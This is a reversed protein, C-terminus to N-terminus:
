ETTPRPVPGEGASKSDELLILETRASSTVMVRSGLRAGAAGAAVEDDEEEPSFSERADFFTVTEEQLKQGPLGAEEESSKGKKAPSSSFGLRPFRFWGARDQKKEPEPDPRAGPQTQIPASRQTDDRANARTESTSSFGINPLWSWLLGSSKKGEPKEKLARDEGALLTAAEPRDDLPFELIEAPEEDSGSDALQLGSGAESPFTPPGLLNASGSIMEFPEGTDPQPDAPVTDGGPSGGSPEGAAPDQAITDTSAQAPLEPIKVKLLSFGYSAMQVMSTPIESERVIQTSSAEPAAMDSCEGQVNSCITVGQSEGQSEQIHVPVKSVPSVESSLDPGEPQEGPVVTGSARLLSAGWLGPSDQLLAVETGAETCPVARVVPFFVDAESSPVPFSFRPVKLKPFTVTLVSDEWLQNVNVVSVQSPVDTSSAKLKLPGKPQFSGMETRVEAKALDCGGPRSLPEGRAEGPPALPESPRVGPIQLPLPDIAPHTGGGPGPLGSESGPATPFHLQLSPSELPRSPVDAYSESEPAAGEMQAELPRPSVSAEAMSGPDPAAEATDQERPGGQEKSSSRRFGPVRLTPMRFWHAQSDAPAARTATGGDPSEVTPVDEPHAMREGHSQSMSLDGLRSEQSDGRIALDHQPLHLDAKSLSVEVEVEVKPKDFGLSPPHAQPVQVHGGDGELPGATVGSDGQGGDCSARETAESDPGDTTSSLAADTDGPPSSERAKSAKRRPLPLRPMALAPKRGKEGEKESPLHMQAETPPVQVTPQTHMEDTELVLSLTADEPHGGPDGTVVAQKKPSWSFSPLKLRPMKFPSGKGDRDAAEASGGVVAPGLHEERGPSEPVGSSLPQSAGEGLSDVGEVPCLLSLGPSDKAARSDAEAVAAAACSFGFKPKHFKPFTVRAHFAPPEPDEPGSQHEPSSVCVVSSESGASPAGRQPSCSAQPGEASSGPPFCAELPQSLKTGPARTDVQVSPQEVDLESPIVEGKPSKVELKPGKTDVQPGKVDVKPMKISPIQVKPVHGKLDVGSVTAVPLEGEPLAAESLTVDVEGPGAQLTPLQISLESSKIDGQISPLTVNAEVKPVKVEVSAGLAKGPASLSFSPMKFKPMKFKSDKTAVEKDELALDGELQASPAQIDVEMSPLEMDLNPTSEEGKPGKVDVLPGKLDVKPIKISTMQMKPLHGKLGIGSDPAAQLEGELLTPKPLTVDAQGAGAELDTASLQSSLDSGKLDGQISPLAVDAEVKPRKVEVSTDLAKSPASVGFFPMKFKPMKFKGEKTAVEKDALALDGELQAGPAQIDVQVSPLELDPTSVKGKSGKIDLKPGKVDVQPEKHDVKPMKISPMQVKPLHGELSSVAASAVLLEEEPLTAEPLTVDVQLARSDLDTDPLQRCLDSGKLDGEISPMDVDAKMKPVKVEVSTDLAKGPASLGVSPIKFKPMKFKVEKTAVDKELLALDGELNASPTQIDVQMSPLEMELDPVSVKGKSDKVDLKPGKLDVKPMKISPMHVKPLHGKLSAGSDPAALLEGEPQATEHLTMDVHGDRRDLDASPLQISLDSSKLDGQTSSLTVDAEVKPAKVEVSTDLAKGPVSVSLSPMKFKPMKFKGEKTAVDKDALALDGEVKAGPAQIDVQMSPQEVMLDPTSVEGKTGKVDLKPGKVDVQPGKLDVKPMKISPMQVKPLHGKLGVGSAPAVPLEKKPLTAESFTVDVQGARTELDATPLQISLDPTKLDSQISPLVVGTGVKPGKVEVSADLTKGPVSIGFSPMKFKPRKLKSDKTAEDKEELVLDGELKTNPAQIDVQGSPLEVDLDPVSVEVKPGKVDVKPGKIDVQPGKLDVKPMKISPMQVKPQHGKLGSKIDPEGPLEEKPLPSDHLTVGVQGDRTDLNTAPLQISLESSMLDGQTSPLAVDAEVKPVKIDVSADLAKGTASLGFSPMKFKPMKFKSDKTAVEKDEPALDEEMKTTPAQIDVQGSPLEMELDLGSVGSKPGKVDLKPGKIDVQPGKLDVKPMKISPMQVKPLHGKLSPGSDPAALLEGEPLTAEYLTVDELGDRTNLAATPLQISLDSSKLDGHISPLTVDAEVKAVKVEVSTDLAKGPVSVGLSPMKFKPMKFKGEKTAVDKDALALDGEVKAGPAQIDVQVSPQEVDMVPTSVEGKIGKVELKPGKIDLQPGKLDVKPMKISPMQMKPLHGKLKAGASSSAPIEGESLTAEPLTMDVKGTGAQLGTAPLQISFDSAKLDGQISPLAVDAEAKLGKVEVSTDLTKGPASLGFSPMKFKPRKFKSDKTDVEKDAQALDGELKTSPTEIDVQISPLEMDFDPTSHEVKSGKIDLKPGRVDVQPEKLDVKPMKISPMQGKPLHGKLSAGAPPAALLEGKPLTAKPLTLDVQGTGAELDATPMQISIDSTKLDSQISPLAVDAEVKPAKVEMSTDLTKSPTSVSFSPMKFKPMKFKSDRTAVEKDELTLDGELKASPAQIDVQGSPLEMDLDPASAEVKPGKVDLKPGKIDVQPGKLDVKPMKISPMQVKPLHGKLSAGAPPAPPQQGEPLTTKPLTVDGQSDGADLNATPLQIGLESTKLDGQISPLAVDAEVEPAKVELSTELMKGPVSVGFSPMKFKPMEFKSDKIAKEKDALALDGELKASHAQIDVQVSPQEVDMVPTSVEGKTGKVELKPGKIDVQPGKLDVKPMKISPMQMKPLHGKLKAGASSSASIEGESLTAEPLTVDVKGTGTELGTAPLQISLDSAKLDGQISPLAIHAEEKPGKVEMSTDLTKGPASIGFSPMKFKPRKFKSDRTAVEKDALALDGELKASPAQIDVQGSPLEMDLDPGSVEGRSGKVDLKPDKIDVQPGKIDVKPMKIRPMQVKPQHGKLGSKTDPAVPLEGEPLPVEHLTMYVQGDRTDLDATPLQIILDSSTLDGQISPLAVDDEVKPAKVEVSADLGKGLASVGLSPMKFKPMKFKSDKTTVDKDALALDGDLKEGPVQIDVQLSPQEVDRDPASVRGKIGKVDLKPGKIDVQPGKLDVKPMKISPMQGKPLHGKLSAGAPPVVPLEAKPLTAKPQTLDVQGTGAELDATPMQISLESTKLDSQISPLSVDAEAKTGKVEMSTDLTKSHTSVGFSPMKFKPMKFKSDKIDVEKDEPALDGELKASPAQIDVQGSPLEMDLDPASVEVKPGKVELKPGKIDVQPGKLDVKPMKISPMQGKVVQVKLSAGDAPAVPLEEKPLTAEPLTVDVQGARDGMEAPPLQISIDSTKLVGQISPLAVDVEVKPAKVEVSTDLTKGPASIGLSPMKFKPMKFKSDRTAVDKDALALDGELKAGPAEIDVQVSPLEMDFNPVSVEVKPGKMDLKPGKIDVQPGKLDVKPMKISPMQVKPLHGKLSAGAPPAPPQQGEPLTTKPLTVDGQSDGAELNATPLHISIDSTKLDGQISPLVVDAEVKPTKVEVSTDLTKSPASLGFSPMKFKPMKIKGEKTAVDKDTLALAGEVKAGPAQIDVQMSPQELMLDPANVEGKNDKVELRPVKVDVQPGKLDVKPMKISPMQGKPLHGKLSAGAPPAALLEAKPLTAKPQTLDVQGTGAELDATPMQISLESTKLDSQISPLSVDAEAKTGKVEMSTDLTKSHTSVGFSPMKFKPMKFKSDKTAVEKDALALDGELKASPAQIDVQGSPLEMDLDPASVEVKPGKVELKPGKIDVQPGKLDVKPMKVSPMQGKPVQGKLSAGDAPAVPLEEKPLTAEPLTVDVQGTSDGMEAPPLQISIDSTKLDGQISPLVVDVDVKPAKVEVSTDLTKVPASLGFSPMRFKPMKFKSDRTAVEKDAMALDGELKASPAQMDVQGSPLEMDLDPGSVEGRSGKVDLKPGKIDVQPGKLDVKPMKISPMQVKPLHGKLSPGSDPAALLEGEPLIAEYLTVDEQGDRTNLAATPLQISLDSSKLDGHISPLTVDAEVKAVKVEVSTDLAKGPVSVGLSPMRFKPMKFKGEKTAVDKDALALDGEEKAGPAQIDVQVSPQEVDMVPTSVEGKTGKVDLKSGKIDLQPGKLDVKPMKISPMQMKPLHGKLKAGASPSAPIEGESLTAEPLTVDVKGTGAELGTAPLQISLDSAKLDGQISPLSVDAEAKLGKVEMSTDLTKSHTSVGFSPMKFKPMKFKSDKIDVEKDEPVLDGELKASPAQMDVQGSPLEMDLDPASVEVKPGKVELKPGKIDVQPGKLDVKPMKVSPMQGKPVQGKLSAGDAPAAPLEEKPLTAEPLTMDVQGASDGMEAPPMQISIDSTKLDGQISPLVVDVEVKPAKVEVSTDLTKVPASLGFSPMRFKPMKFKSDRTAVEKDALALDGELKASPAQMDVQGSPLEMDLDPGSVEGRSGKVDLKPGKIDVQPGKLDVKPMKISPMQVKPLHGKLSAGDPPAPPQQGEPLTTKPLTVEGQSDGAELNATPLQISIDSTKLDGQISPLAVDAEVEPAKVEVSTDLTKSPASLGFSPMKFKPMKIKGEKTAFDKDAIALAGEVKAGPAQIDVQVSPQELMLDPANVEGKNDKMDLKPGKVDVQPGKLDVKPMKISPMQGKPLHGKLSAGAPPVGLLEGEPLTAKPLTLDVQGTGAELDATPMQISLESTKLDSQISPLSVDDEVKPAKVEMSTDLTKIPASLGFSPMKFKPMKFKSDKTAVEKDALALDGELKASPAQMDVQGSPLEMELDLSSVESKPGKVDLKPGKIDVQPGKLDVKPMKISPMQGKPLHGKLSAGAPPAAPLEGKPLTAKPQTLDVQGTGAELDATPMQISIDSTKLDSQISPLAVDAEVKPAKVEMSTDLTKSPTSVSFSPMKFKPRKFKSDRTAVEKDELTLDGELKASPAQMDVQGSPLEMDMDPASVEVTPGKVELKPSKIDVQPGKLEGKSMKISPMQMKPLHGKLSAGAAPAVQFEREPVTDETHTVEVQRARADLDATPLQISIDSTKLDGQISPLAVDVEVKPAKVEVSTDLTKVPASMGFSPMKFKPMKFKSDRTAVEKDALALDGELKEGPVQTDVQVSPLEVDLDPASVECKKGKVNLKTGKVDVEPGEVDVKPMKISPMQLKPKHGKLGAEADPAALLEKKPLTAETLTMDMQGARIDVNAEPLQMHLEPDKLDGQISPLTVDAEVKPLNVEVSSDLTKSPASIGFSPMKFKPMKFKSDKTAVEKDALALDGELKASPAQIDMKGASLKMDLSPASVEGKRGKVDLKTGKITVQPGKLDVKPMKISPMQMKRLHGKLGAGSDPDALLDGEPLTAKPLTVDVQGDRTDLNIAPLQISLDPSRLDGQTSPLAVDAEAKPARVEVSADWAPGIASGSFSPMKFTPRRLQGEGADQDRHGKKINEETTAADRKQTAGVQRQEQEEGPLADGPGVAHPGRTTRRDEHAAERKGEGGARPPSARGERSPSRGTSSRPARPMKAKAGRREPDEDQQTEGKDQPTKPTKEEQEKRRAADAQPGTGVPTDEEPTAETRGREDEGPSTQKGKKKELGKGGKGTETVKEKSIGFKPTKLDRGQVQTEPGHTQSSGADQTDLLSLRAIGTELSQIEEWEQEWSMRRGAGIGSRPKSHEGAKHQTSVPQTERQGRAAMGVGEAPARDGLVHAPLGPEVGQQVPPGAEQWQAREEPRGGAPAGTAGPGDEWPGMEGLVGAPHPRGHAERGLQGAASPEQGSGMKFRFNLFKRRRQRGPGAKQARLEEQRQAETDTSTPSVDRADGPEHAESSSHSRRPGPGRKSKLAQFKPWSLREHPRRGRSERPKSILRERDGDAELTKTPTETCEDAVDKDQEKGKSDQWPGSVALEEGEPARLKRKIRFQIKYPESYQLIKLADEYKIDDFFITASLLQDGERLSFLKAASSDKLVQKVFIGQHGGGTVSYGSAGAEVETELTEETVERVAEPHSMRSFVQSDGSARKWWSRRRGSSGRRGPADEQVGFGTGEATCEYVPSSGQPRPRIVEDVPGETVTRDEETAAGPDEPQLQRGSVSGPAGPWTPLVVHFCDCM